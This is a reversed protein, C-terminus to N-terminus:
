LHYGYQNTGDTGRVLGLWLIVVLLGIIPLLVLLVFVGSKNMDHFRKTFAALAIAAMVMLGSWYVIAAETSQPHEREVRTIERNILRYEVAPGEFAISDVVRVAPGLLLILGLLSANTLWWERRGIRGQFSFLSKLGFGPNAVSGSPTQPFLPNM